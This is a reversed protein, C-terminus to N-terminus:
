ALVALAKVEILFDEFYLGEVLAVTDTPFKGDPFIKPYLESIVALHSPLNERGVIFTTFEVVNSFTAGVSELINGLNRYVQRTQEAMDGKGVVNGSVDISPQGAIFFFVGPQVVLGQSFPYEESQFLNDPQVVTKSLESM